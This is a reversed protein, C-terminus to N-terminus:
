LRVAFIVGSPVLCQCPDAQWAALGALRSAGELKRLQQMPCRPTLSGLGGHRATRNSRNQAGDQRGAGKLGPQIVFMQGVVGVRWVLQDRWAPPPVPSSALLALPPTSILSSAPGKRRCRVASRVAADWRTRPEVWCPQALPCSVSLSLFLVRRRARGTDTKRRGDGTGRVCAVVAGGCWRVVGYKARVVVFFAVSQRRGQIRGKGSGRHWRGDGGPTGRPQRGGRDSGHFSGFGADWCVSLRRVHATVVAGPVM